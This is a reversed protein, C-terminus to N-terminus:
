GKGILPPMRIPYAILQNAIRPLVSLSTSADSPRSFVPPVASRGSLLHDVVRRPSQTTIQDLEYSGLRNRRAPDLSLPSTTIQSKSSCTINTDTAAKLLPVMLQRMTCSACCPGSGKAISPVGGSDSARM